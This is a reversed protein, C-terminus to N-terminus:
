LFRRDQFRKKASKVRKFNRSGFLKETEHKTTILYLSASFLFYLLPATANFAIEM